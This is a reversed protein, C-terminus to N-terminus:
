LGRARDGAREQEYRAQCVLCRKATPQAMLRRFPVAEGCSVCIGYTGQQMRALSEEVERLEGLERGTEAVDVETPLETDSGDEVEAVGDALARARKEESELAHVRAAERLEVRRQQLELEFRALQSSSLLDTV